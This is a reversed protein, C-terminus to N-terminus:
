YINRGWMISRVVAEFDNNVLILDASAKAASCGSGMALGVDSGALSEIDNIGEGTTAM